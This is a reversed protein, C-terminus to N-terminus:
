ENLTTMMEKKKRGEDGGKGKGKGKKRVEYVNGTGEQEKQENLEKV